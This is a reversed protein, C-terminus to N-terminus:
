ENCSSDNNFAVELAKRCPAGPASAGSAMAIDGASRLERSKGIGSPRIGAMATIGPPQDSMDSGGAYEGSCKM